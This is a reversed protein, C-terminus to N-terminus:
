CAKGNICINMSYSSKGRYENNEIDDDTDYTFATVIIKSNIQDVSYSSQIKLATILTNESFEDKEIHSYFGKGYNTYDDYLYNMLYEWKDFTNDPSFINYSVKEGNALTFKINIGLKVNKYKQWEDYCAPGYGKSLTITEDSSPYIQFVGIDQEVVPTVNITNLKTLTNGNLKYIGIPTTNLDEYKDVVEEKKKEKKVIDKKEEKKGCGCLLIIILLGFFIKKM